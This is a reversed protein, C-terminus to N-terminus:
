RREIEWLEDVRELFDLAATGQQKIKWSEPLEDKRISAKGTTTWLTNMPPFSVAGGCKKARADLASQWYAWPILYYDRFQFSIIIFGIAAPNQTWERLFECQHEEVRSLRIKDESCHKAEFAIPRSGYRGMFDVTAKEEYKASVIKGTGNRLPICLTNQKEIIARNQYRYQSNAFKIFGEFTMGRNGLSSNNM